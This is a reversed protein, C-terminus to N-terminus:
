DSKQAESEGRQDEPGDGGPLHDGGPSGKVIGFPPAHNGRAKKETHVHEEPDSGHGLGGDSGGGKEDERLWDDDGNQRM